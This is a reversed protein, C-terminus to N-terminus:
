TSGSDSRWWGSTTRSLKPADSILVSQAVEASAQRRHLLPERWSPRLQRADQLNVERLSTRGALLRGASIGGAGLM